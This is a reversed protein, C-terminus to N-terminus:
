KGCNVSSRGPWVFVYDTANVTVHFRMTGTPYCGEMSCRFPYNRPDQMVFSITL